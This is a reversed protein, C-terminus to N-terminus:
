EEEQLEVYASVIVHGLKNEGHKHHQIKVDTIGAWDINNAGCYEAIMDSAHCIKLQGCTLAKYTLKELGSAYDGDVAIIIKKWMRDEGYLTSAMEAGYQKAAHMYKVEDAIEEDTLMEDDDRIRDYGMGNKRSYTAIAKGNVVVTFEDYNQGEHIECDEYTTTPIRNDYINRVQIKM